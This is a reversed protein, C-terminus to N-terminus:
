VVSSAIDQDVCAMGPALEPTVQIVLEVVGLAGFSGALEFTDLHMLPSDDHKDTEVGVSGTCALDVSHAEVPADSGVAAFGGFRALAVVVTEGDVLDCSAIRGPPLNQDVVLFSLQVNVQVPGVLQNM